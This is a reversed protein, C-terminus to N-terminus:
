LWHIRPVINASYRLMLGRLFFQVRVYPVGNEIGSQTTILMFDTFIKWPSHTDICFKGDRQYAFGILIKEGPDFFYAFLIYVVSMLWYAPYIRLVRNLYFEKYNPYYNKDYTRYVLYGSLVFFTYVALIGTAWFNESLHFWLVMLALYARFLGM